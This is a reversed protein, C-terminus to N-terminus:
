HPLLRRIIEANTDKIIKAIATLHLAAEQETINGSIPPSKQQLVIGHKKLYMEVRMTLEENRAIAAREAKDADRFPLFERKSSDVREEVQRTFEIFTMTPGGVTASIAM